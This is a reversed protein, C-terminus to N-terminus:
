FSNYHIIENNEYLNYLDIIYIDVFVAKIIHREIPKDYHRNCRRKLYGMEDLKKVKYNM